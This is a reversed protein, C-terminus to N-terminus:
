LTLVGCLLSTEEFAKIMATNTEGEGEGGGNHRLILESFVRGRLKKGPRREM